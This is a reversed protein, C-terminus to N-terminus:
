DQLVQGYIQWRRLNNSTDRIEQRGYISDSLDTDSILMFLGACDMTDNVEASIYGASGDNGLIGGASEMDIEVNINNAMHMEKSLRDILESQLVSEVTDKSIDEQGKLYAEKTYLVTYIEGAAVGRNMVFIFVYLALFVIGTVLPMIFCMEITIQGNNKIM